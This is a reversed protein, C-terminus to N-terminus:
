VGLDFCELVCPVPRIFSLTGEIFQHPAGQSDGGTGSTQICIM